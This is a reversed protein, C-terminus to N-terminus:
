RLKYVITRILGTTALYRGDPSFDVSYLENSYDRLNAVVKTKLKQAQIGTFLIGFILLLIIKKM